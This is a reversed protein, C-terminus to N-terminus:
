QASGLKHMLCWTPIELSLLLKARGSEQGCEKIVKVSWTRVVHDKTVTIGSFKAGDPEEEAHAIIDCKVDAPNGDPVTCQTAPADASTSQM